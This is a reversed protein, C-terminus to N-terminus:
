NGKSPLRHALSLVTQFVVASIPNAIKLVKGMTENFDESADEQMGIRKIKERRKYCEQHDAEALTKLSAKSEVFDM